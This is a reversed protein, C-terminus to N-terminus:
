QEGLVDAAEKVDAAFRTLQTRLVERAFEQNQQNGELYYGLMGCMQACMKKSSYDM